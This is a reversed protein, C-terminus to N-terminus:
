FLDRSEKVIRALLKTLPIDRDRSIRPIGTSDFVWSHFTGHYGLFDPSNGFINTIFIDFLGVKVDKIQSFGQAM